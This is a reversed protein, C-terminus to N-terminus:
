ARLRARVAGRSVGLQRAAESANGRTKALAAKVFLAQARKLDAFSAGLSIAHLAIESALDADADDPAEDDALRLTERDVVPSGAEVTVAVIRQLVSKLERVNGPFPRREIRQWADETFVLSPALASVLTRLDERRQELGPVRVLHVALRQYLDRRFRGAAMERELDCNTSAVVRAQLPLDARAGLPRFRLHEIVRLLIPQAPLPIEGLEDLCLTGEGAEECFGVHRDDAGTFAGRHHGFLASQLLTPSSEVLNVSVFPHRPRSRRHIERAVLEKGAGTPGTILVPGENRIAREIQSRMRQTAAASGDVIPSENAM